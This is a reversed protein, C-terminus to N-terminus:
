SKFMIGVTVWINPGITFQMLKFKVRGTMM